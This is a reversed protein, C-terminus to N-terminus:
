PREVAITFSVPDVPRSATAGSAFANFSATVVTEGTEGGSTYTVQVQGASDSTSRAASLTGTGKSLTWDIVMGRHPSGNQDVARVVFPASQVGGVALRQHNGSVQVLSITYLVPNRGPGVPNSECSVLPLSVLALGAFALGVRARQRFRRSQAAIRSTVRIEYENRRAAYRDLRAVFAGRRLPAPISPTGALSATLPDPPRLGGTQDSPHTRLNMTGRILLSLRM